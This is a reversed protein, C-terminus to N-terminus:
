WILASTPPADLLLPYTLYSLYFFCTLLSLCIRAHTGEPKIKLFLRGVNAHNPIFPVGNFTMGCDPSFCPLSIYKLLPLSVQTVQKGTRFHHVVSMPFFAVKTLSIYVAFYCWSPQELNKNLTKYCSRPLSCDSNLMHYKTPLVIMLYALWLMCIVTRLDIVVYGFHSAKFECEVATPVEEYSFKAYM